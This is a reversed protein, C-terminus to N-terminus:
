LGYIKYGSLKEFEECYAIIKDIASSGLFEIYIFGDDVDWSPKCTSQLFANCGDFKEHYETYRAFDYYADRWHVEIENRARIIKGYEDSNLNEFKIGFSNHVDDPNSIYAKM